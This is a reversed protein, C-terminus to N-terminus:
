EFNGRGGRGYGTTWFNQDRALRLQLRGLMLVDDTKGGCCAAIWSARLDAAPEM